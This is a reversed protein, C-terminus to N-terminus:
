KPGSSLLSRVAVFATYAFDSSASWTFYGISKRFGWLALRYDGDRLCQRTWHLGQHAMNRLYLTRPVQAKMAPVHYLDEVARLRDRLVSKQPNSATRNEAHWHYIVTYEAIQWCPARLMLRGIWNFDEAHLHSPVEARALNAPIAYSLLSDGQIWHQELLSAQNDYLDYRSEKGGEEKRIIGTKVIHGTREPQQM